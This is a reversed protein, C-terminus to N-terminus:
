MGPCLSLYAPMRACEVEQAETRRLTGRAGAGAAAARAAAPAEAAGQRRRRAAGV